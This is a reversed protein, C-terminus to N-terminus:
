KSTYKSVTKKFANFNRKMLKDNMENILKVRTNEDISSNYLKAIANKPHLTECVMGNVKITEHTDLLINYLVEGSYKVFKVGEYQEVFKRAETLESNYRVKHEGSM